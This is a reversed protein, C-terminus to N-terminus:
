NDDAGEIMAALADDSLETVDRTLIPGGGPGSIEHKSPVEFGQIKALLQMAQIPSQTKIKLGDRGASLESIVSLKEADQLISDPFHWVTQLVPEGTEMNRGAEVTQFKALDSVGTRAFLSLREKMEELGMISRKIEQVKISDMFAKVAHNKMIESASTDQATDTKATGGALLYVQRQTLNPNEISITCMRQQLGTLANFMAEQEPTM